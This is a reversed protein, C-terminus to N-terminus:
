KNPITRNNVISKYMEEYRNLVVQWDYNEAERRAREEIKGTLDSNELLKKLYSYVEKQNRFM